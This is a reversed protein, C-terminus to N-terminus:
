LTILSALTLAYILAVCVSDAGMRFLTRDRRELMGVLYVATVLIGSALLLLSSRDAVNLIPGKAYAIDAPFILAVMVLNSGFINAVAMSYAGLRVAAITTSAEPLSTSSALLTAGIFSSGLGTQETLADAATALLVGAVFVVSSAAVFRLTLDGLSLAASSDEGVCEELIEEPLPPNTTVWHSKSGANRLLALVCFYAAVLVGSWLGIRLGSLPEGIVICCITLALLLVLAAGQLLVVARPIFATLASTALTLDALVLLGTQMTIGGFMNALALEANGASAATLTVALEPLETSGALLVLGIFAEDWGALRAMGHAYKALRVGAFWVALGAAITVALNAEM